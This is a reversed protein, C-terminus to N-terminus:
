MYETMRISQANVATCVRVRPCVCSGQTRTLRMACHKPPPAATTPLAALVQPLAATAPLRGAPANNGKIQTSQTPSMSM